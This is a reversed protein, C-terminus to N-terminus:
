CDNQPAHDAIRVRPLGLQGAVDVHGPIASFSALFQPHYGYVLLGVRDGPELRIAVGNLEVRRRGGGPRPRIPRIQDNVLMTTHRGAREIGIGVFVVPAPGGGSLTIDVIPIGILADGTTEVDYVPLFVGGSALEDIYDAPLANVLRALLATNDDSRQRDDGSLWQGIQERANTGATRAVHWLGALTDERLVGKLLDLGGTAARGSFEHTPSDVTPLDDFSLVTADDLMVTVRPLLAPADHGKLKWDLYALELAATEVPQDGRELRDDTEYAIRNIDELFPLSHGHRMILLHVDRGARRLAQMNAVAENLNFLTDGVGQVLLADAGPACDADDDERRAFMAVPSHARLRRAVRDSIGRGTLPSALGQLLAHYMIPDLKVGSTPLGLAVLASGWLTKVVNEPALSYCLDHWTATPVIASFRADLTAGTLQFGGGYSLGLGGVVIHGDRRMLRDAHTMEHEAWDLLAAIDAGEITPDMIHVHGGSEGFGRQDFSIVFYGDDAARRAAETSPLAGGSLTEYLAPDARGTLRSGGFGHGHLLLPATQQASLAPQMVTIAITVGDDPNTVRAHYDRAQIAARDASAAM